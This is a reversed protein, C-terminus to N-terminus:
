GTGSGMDPMKTNDGYNQHTRSLIPNCINKLEELKAEYESKEVEHNKDLWEITKQVADEVVKKDDASLNGSVKDDQINSRMSYALNELENKAQICERYKDDDAKYKEADTVM